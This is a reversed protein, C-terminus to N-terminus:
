CPGIIAAHLILGPMMLIIAAHAILMFWNLCPTCAIFIFERDAEFQAVKPSM